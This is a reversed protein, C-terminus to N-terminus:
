GGDREPPASTRSAPASPAGAPAARAHDPPTTSAGTIRKPFRLWATTVGSIPLVMFVRGAVWSRREVVLAGDAAKRLVTSTSAIGAIVEGKRGGALREGSLIEAGEPTCSLTGAAESYVATAIPQGRYFAAIELTRDDVFRLEVFDGGRPDLRLSDSLWPPPPNRVSLPSGYEGVEGYQGAVSGCHDSLPLLAAWSAPYGPNSVICGSLAAAVCALAAARRLM